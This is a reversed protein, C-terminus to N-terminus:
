YRIEHDDLLVCTGGREGRWRQGCAQISRTRNRHDSISVRTRFHHNSHDASAAVEQLRSRENRFDAFKAVRKNSGMGKVRDWTAAANGKRLNFRTHDANTTPLM